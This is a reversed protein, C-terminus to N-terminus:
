KLEVPDDKWTLERGILKKITGRPLKIHESDNHFGYYGINFMDKFPKKTSIYEGSYDKALWVMSNRGNLRLQVSKAGMM